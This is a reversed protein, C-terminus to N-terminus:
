LIDLDEHRLSYDRRKANLGKNSQSKDIICQAIQIEWGTAYCKYSSISPRFYLIETM